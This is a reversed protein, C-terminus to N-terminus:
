ADEAALYALLTPSRPWTLEVNQSLLSARLESPPIAAYSTGADRLALAAQAVPVILVSDGGLRQNIDGVYTEM